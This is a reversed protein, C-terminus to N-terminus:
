TINNESFQIRTGSGGITHTAHTKVGSFMVDGRKSHPQKHTIVGDIFDLIYNLYGVVGVRCYGVVCGSLLWM